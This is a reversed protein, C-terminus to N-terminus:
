IGHIILSQILLDFTRLLEKDRRHKMSASLVSNSDYDYLVLIYKSASLSTTPSRCTLDMYIQGTEMIAVYAYQCKDEQVSYPEPAPATVKPQTSRIKQRIQHRQFLLMEVSPAFQM